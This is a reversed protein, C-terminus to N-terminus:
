AVRGEGAALEVPQLAGMAETAKRVDQDDTIHYREFVSRTKWGGMKM